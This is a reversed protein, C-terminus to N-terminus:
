ARKEKRHQALSKGDDRPPRGAEAPLAHGFVRERIRAREEEPVEDAFQWAAALGPQLIDARLTGGETQASLAAEFHETSAPIDGAWVWQSNKPPPPLWGKTCTVPRGSTLPVGRLAEALQELAVAPEVSEAGELPKTCLVLLKDRRPGTLVKLFKAGARHLAQRIKPWSRPDGRWCYLRKLRHRRTGRYLRGIWEQKKFQSCARCSWRKCRARLGLESGSAARSILHKRPSPRPCPRATDFYAPCDKDGSNQIHVCQPPKGVSSLHCARHQRTTKALARAITRSRYDARNWKARMLGSQRFLADIRGPDRGCWFALLCCLAADAESQSQYGSWDGSLLRRFKDGDKAEGALRILQEDDLDASTTDPRTGKSNADATAGPEGLEKRYLEAVQAQRDNVTAPAGALKHGTVTLFRGGPTGDKTLGDYLEVQGRKSRERDPKRGFAFARVGTASPSAETYTDLAKVIAAAWPEVPGADRCHDLDIGTLNNEPVPIIGVGDWGGALYAARAEEFTAWTKPDTSSADAGDHASHPPKAWRGKRWKYRWVVWQALARLEAPINEFIVPLPRPRGGDKVQRFPQTVM